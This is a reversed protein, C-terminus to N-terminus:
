KLLTSLEELSHITFTPLTSTAMKSHDLYCTDIGVNIGLAIDSSLSDGIILAEKKNFEVREEIYSFFRKDPKSVGLEESIFIAEFFHNLNADKLRGRQVDKYGNTILYLKYGREKLLTLAQYAFPLLCGHKSLMALQDEGATRADAKLHYFDFFRKFRETPLAETDLLGKELERWCGENIEVYNNFYEDTQPISYKDFLEILALHEAQNFDFLTNDADFFLHKYMPHLKDFLM